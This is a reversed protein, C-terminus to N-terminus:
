RIERNRTAVALLEQRMSPSANRLARDMVLMDRRRRLRTSLATM